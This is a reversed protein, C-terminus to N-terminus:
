HPRRLDRHRRRPAPGIDANSDTAGHVGGGAQKAQYMAVDAHHLLNRPSIGLTATTHGVSARLPVAHDGLRVPPHSVTRWAARAAVAIEDPGGNVLLAFEDGSLRAALLVPPGLRALRQGVEALLSNGAEHGFTDNIAKFGDLDLMVLGFPQGQHVTRSVAAM